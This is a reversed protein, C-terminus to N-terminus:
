TKAIFAYTELSFFDANMCVSVVNNILQQIWYGVIFVFKRGNQNFLLIVNFLLTSSWGSSPVSHEGLVTYCKGV